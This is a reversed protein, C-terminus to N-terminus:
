PKKQRTFMQKFDHELRKVCRSTFGLQTSQQRLRFKRNNNKLSVEFSFCTQFVANKAKLPFM